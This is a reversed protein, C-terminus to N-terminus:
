DRPRSASERRRRVVRIFFFGAIVGSVAFLLVATPLDVADYEVTPRYYFILITAMTGAGIFGAGAVAGALLWTSRNM